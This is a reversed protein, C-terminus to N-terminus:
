RREDEEIKERGRGEREEEEKRGRKGERSSECRDIGKNHKM